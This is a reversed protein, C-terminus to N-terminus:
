FTKKDRRYLDNDMCPLDDLILSFNHIIEPVLCLLIQEKVLNNKLNHNIKESDSFGSNINTTDGYSM